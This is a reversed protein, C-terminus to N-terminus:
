FGWTNPDSYSITPSQHYPRFIENVVEEDKSLWSETERLFNNFEALAQNAQEYEGIAQKAKRIMYLVIGEHLDALDTRSNFPDDADNSFQTPLAYYFVKLGNTKATAPTPYLILNNGEKFFAIPEDADANRWDAVNTDMWARNVQKLVRYDSGDYYSVGGRLDLKLFTSFATTLNYTGTSATININGSTPFLELVRAIHNAGRQAWLNAQATTAPSDPCRQYFENRLEVRTM